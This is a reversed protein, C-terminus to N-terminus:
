RTAPREYFEEAAPGDGDDAGTAVSGQSRTAGSKGGHEVGTRPEAAAADVASPTASASGFVSAKNDLLLQAAGAPNDEGYVTLVACGPAVDEELESAQAESVGQALLAKLLPRKAPDGSIFRAFQTGPEEVLPQGTYQDAPLIKGLWTKKFGAKHLDKIAARADHETAFVAALTNSLQSVGGSNTESQDFM